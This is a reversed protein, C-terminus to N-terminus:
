GGGTAGGAGGSYAEDELHVPVDATIYISAEDLLRGQPACAELVYGPGPPLPALLVVVAGSTAFYNQVYADKQVECEGGGDVPGPDRFIRLLPPPGEQGKAEQLRASVLAPSAVALGVRIRSGKGALVQHQACRLPPELPYAFPHPQPRVQLVASAHWTLRFDGLCGARFTSVIAVYPGEAVNELLLTCCGQRYAGSTEVHRLADPRAATGRFLRVNVSHEAPCELFLRLYEAGGQPVEIRLQPNRFFSWLSNSCGGATESTWSGDAAGRAFGDPVLPPLAVLSGPVPLYAQLTFNFAVKNAHQSVVVVFERQGRAVDGSLKVLACEGNSYIGQQLPADPCCLRSGGGYVHVAVYRTGVETRERVHRSLLIWVCADPSEPLPEALRLAYQPNFGVLHTDDPLSSRAFHPAPDWRGHLEAATAGLRRPAWCLYLHSFHKLVDEWEIWFHGDDVAAEAVPDCGGLAAALEEPGGGLMATAEAWSAHGPAFRGRWRIRGWPNKLRLLRLTGLRRCDLVPYAHKAVLGNSKSVGEIYGLSRSESSPAADPLESTGLCIVCRGAVRGEMARHFVEDWSEVRTGNDEPLSKRALPITEPVWGTLHFIDTGPNSGQMDYSGGMIKTFSKELLTM